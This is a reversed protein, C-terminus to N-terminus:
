NTYWPQGPNPHTKTPAPPHRTFVQLLCFSRWSCHSEELPTQTTGRHSEFFHIQPLILHSQGYTWNFLFSATAAIIAAKWAPASPKTFPCWGSLNSPCIWLDQKTHFYMRTWTWGFNITLMWTSLTPKKWDHDAFISKIRRCLNLPKRDLPLLISEKKWLAYTVFSVILLRCCRCSKWALAKHSLVQKKKKKNQRWSSIPVISRQSEFDTHWM